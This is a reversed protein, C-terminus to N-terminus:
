SNLLQERMYFAPWLGQGSPLQIRAEFRGYTRSFKGVTKIRASTFDKTAGASGKYKEARAEIVLNGNEIHSNQPRDTYYELEQNGWGDAGIDFVWKTSDVASGNPANFEDSWVLVWKQNQMQTKDQAQSAPTQASGLTALFLLYFPVTVTAQRFKSVM